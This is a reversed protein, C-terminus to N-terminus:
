FLPPQFEKDDLAIDLKYYVVKSKQEVSGQRVVSEDPIMIGEYMSYNLMQSDYNIRNGVSGMTMRLRKSFFDRCSVYIYIPKNNEGICTLRYFDEEEIRSRDISVSKFVDKLRIGPNTLRSMMLVGALEKQELQIVKKRNMDVFYGNNGNAIIIHEPENDTYTTLKFQDPARFKIEVMQVVPLEMWSRDTTIQQRMVYTKAKAFRGNPDMASQMSDELQDLTIDTASIKESFSYCGTLLLLGLACMLFFLRKM